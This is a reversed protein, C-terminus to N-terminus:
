RGHFWDTLARAHPVHGSLEAVVVESSVSAGRECAGRVADRSRPNRDFDEDFRERLREYLSLAALGAQFRARHSRAALLLTSVPDSIPITLARRVVLGAREGTADEHLAGAAALRLSLLATAAAIRRTADQVFGPTRRARSLYRADFAIRVFLGGVARAVTGESPLRHAFAFGQSTLAVAVARFVAETRSLEGLIGRVETPSVRVDFPPDLVILHSRPGAGGHAPALHVRRSLPEELGLDAALGTVRAKFADARFADDLDEAGLGLLLTAETVPGRIRHALYDMCERALDDTGALFAEAREHTAKEPIADPAEAALAEFPEAAHAARARAERLAPLARAAERVVLKSAQEAFRPEARLARVLARFDRGETDEAVRRRAHSALNDLARSLARARAADRAHGAYAAVDALPAQGRERAEGLVDLMMASSVVGHRAAFAEHSDATEDGALRMLQERARSKAYAELAETVAQYDRRHDSM